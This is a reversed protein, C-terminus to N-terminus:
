DIVMGYKNNYKLFGKLEPHIENIYTDIFEQIFPAIIYQSDEPPTQGCDLYDIYDTSQIMSSDILILLILFFATVFDLRMTIEDLCNKLCLDPECMINAQMYTQGNNHVYDNLKRRINEWDNKLHYEKLMKKIVKNNELYNLYNQICLKKKQAQSLEKVNNDFWADVSIDDDSKLYGSILNNTGIEIAKVFTDINIGEKFVYEMQKTNLVKRNNLVELIYLFLMLDDRYKRVLLNADSLSGFMCCHKISNLTRISSDILQPQFIHMKRNTICIATKGTESILASLLDLFEMLKDIKHEFVIYDQNNTIKNNVNELDEFLMRIGGSASKDNKVRM